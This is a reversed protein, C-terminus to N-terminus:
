RKMFYEFSRVFLSCFLSYIPFCSCSPPLAVFRINHLECLQNHEHCPLPFKIRLDQNVQLKIQSYSLQIIDKNATQLQCVEQRQCM